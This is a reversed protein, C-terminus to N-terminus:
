RESHGTSAQVEELFSSRVQIAWRGDRLTVVYLSDQTHLVEGDRDLRTFTVLVHVKYRGSQVIEKRDYRSMAWGTREARAFDIDPLYAEADTWYSPRGLGDVRMHPYHLAAAFRKPDRANFADLYEDVAAIAAAEGATLTREAATVNAILAVLVMAVLVIKPM